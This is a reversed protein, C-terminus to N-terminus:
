NNRTVQRLESITVSLSFFHEPLILFSLSALRLKVVYNSPTHWHVETVERLEVTVQTCVYAPHHGTDQWVLSRIEILPPRKNFMSNPQWGAVVLSGRSQTMTYPNFLELRALIWQCKVQHQSRFEPRWIRYLRKDMSGDTRDRPKM